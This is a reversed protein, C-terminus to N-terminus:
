SSTRTRLLSLWLCCVFMERDDLGQFTKSIVAARADMVAAWDHGASGDSDGHKVCRCGKGMFVSGAAWGGM